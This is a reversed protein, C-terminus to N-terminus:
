RLKEMVLARLLCLLHRSTPISAKSPPQAPYDCSPCRRPIPGVPAAVRIPFSLPCDTFVIGALPTPAHVSLTTSSSGGGHQHLLTGAQPYGVLGGV